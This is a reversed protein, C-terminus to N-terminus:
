HSSEGPHDLRVVGLTLLEAAQTASLQIRSLPEYLTHGQQIAIVVTYTARAGADDIPESSRMEYFPKLVVYKRKGQARPRSQEGHM